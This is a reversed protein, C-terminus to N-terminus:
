RNGKKLREYRATNREGYKSDSLVTNTIFNVSENTLDPFDSKIFKHLDDSTKLNSIKIPKNDNDKTYLNRKDFYSMEMYDPVQETNPNNRTTLKVLGVEDNKNAVLVVAEREKCFGGSNYFYKDDSHIVTGPKIHLNSIQQQSLQQHNNNAVVANKTSHNINNNKTKNNPKFSKHNKRKSM